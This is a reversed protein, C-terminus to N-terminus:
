APARATVIWTSSPGFVGAPTAFDALGDRLALEIQPRLREAEAGALRIVEGAPGLAMALQVAEDLDRGICINRDHRELAIGTYGAGVLIDSVTDAGAMSFPGPGCTPQDKQEPEKVFREVIQEARHLWENDLKRRWVVMCLRGGPSLATRVNRLAAVPNAFFMTGFRSFALAFGAGLAATEVDAVRFEVNTLGEARAEETAQAVFRAAADVGVVRGSPGVLRALRRTTDGFGCGLDLVRAGEGPPHRELAADGHGALGDTVLSRFRVFKDFLVTNWAEIADANAPSFRPEM